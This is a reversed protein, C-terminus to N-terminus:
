GSGGVTLQRTRSYWWSALVVCVILFMVELMAVM